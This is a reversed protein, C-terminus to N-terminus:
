RRAAGILASAASAATATRMETKTRWISGAAAAHALLSASVKAWIRQIGYVILVVLFFAGAILVALSALGMAYLIIMNM